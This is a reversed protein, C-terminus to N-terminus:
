LVLRPRPAPPAAPSLRPPGRIGPGPRPPQMPARAPPPLTLGAGPDGAVVDALLGILDGPDAGGVVVRISVANRHEVKPLCLLRCPLRHDLARVAGVALMAGDGHAIGHVFIEGKEVVTPLGAGIGAVPVARQDPGSEALDLDRL